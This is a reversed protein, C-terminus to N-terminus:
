LDHFIRCNIKNWFEQHLKIDLEKLKLKIYPNLYRCNLSSASCRKSTLCRQFYVTVKFFNSCHLYFIKLVNIIALKNLSITVFLSNTSDFQKRLNCCNEIEIIVWFRAKKAKRWNVTWITIYRGKQWKSIRKFCFYNWVIIIHKKLGLFYLTITLNEPFLLITVIKTRGRLNVQEWLVLFMELGRKYPCLINYILSSEVSKLILSASSKPQILSNTQFQTKCNVSHRYCLSINCIFSCFIDEDNGFVRGSKKWRNLLFVNKDQFHHVAKPQPSFCHYWYM